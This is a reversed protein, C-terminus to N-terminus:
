KGVTREMIMFILGTTYEVNVLLLFGFWFVSLIIYSAFLMFYMLKSHFKLRIEM